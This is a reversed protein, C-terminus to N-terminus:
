LGRAMVLDHQVDTGLVFPQSGVARFGVKEYFAIARPNKEWVALWLVDCKWLKSQAICADMLAQGVGRGHWVRDAYLREVEAPRAAVVGVSSSERRLMSYGIISREGDEALWTACADDMLEAALADTSFAHALYMRMDAATNAAGFTQEFLRAGVDALAHADTPTALRLNFESKNGPM